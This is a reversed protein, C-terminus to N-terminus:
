APGSSLEAVRDRMLDLRKQKEISYTRSERVVHELLKLSKQYFPLSDLKEGRAYLLEAEAYFLHSLVELHGNTYHHEGLLTDTLADVPLSSFFAADERLVEHYANEISRAAREFEGKRIMGLIGAVLDGIMEIMRMIYDRQYVM